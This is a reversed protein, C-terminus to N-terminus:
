VVCYLSHIIHVFPRSIFVFLSVYGCLLGGQHFRKVRGCRLQKPCQQSSFCAFMVEYDRLRSLLYESEFKINFDYPNYLTLVQKHSSPDGEVFKLDEPFVFVPIRKDRAGKRSRSSSPAKASM